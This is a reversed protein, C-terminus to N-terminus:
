DTQLITDNFDNVVVFVTNHQKAGQRFVARWIDPHSQAICDRDPPLMRIENLVTMQKSVILRVHTPQWLAIDEVEVAVGGAGLTANDGVIANVASREVIEAPCGTRSDHRDLLATLTLRSL